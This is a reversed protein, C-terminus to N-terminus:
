EGNMGQAKLFGETFHASLLYCSPFGSLHGQPGMQGRARGTVLGPAPLRFANAQRSPQAGVSSSLHDALLCDTPPGRGLLGIGAGVGVGSM